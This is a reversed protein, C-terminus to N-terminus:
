KLQKTYLQERREAEKETQSVFPRYYINYGLNVPDFISMEVVGLWVLKERKGTKIDNIYQGLIEGKRIKRKHKLSLFKNHVAGFPTPRTKEVAGKAIVAKASEEKLISDAVEQIRKKKSM